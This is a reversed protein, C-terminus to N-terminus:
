AAAVETNGPTENVKQLKIGYKLELQEIATAEPIEPANQADMFSTVMYSFGESLSVEVGNGTDVKSCALALAAKATAGQDEFLSFHFGVKRATERVGPLGLAIKQEKVYEQVQKANKSDAIAVLEAVNDAKLLKVLDKLKTYGIAVLSAEDEPSLALKAIKEYVDIKYQVVRYGDEIGLENVLFANFGARDVAYKPTTGDAEMITTHAKNRLVYSLVGGIAYDTAQKDQQLKKAAAIADGGVSQVISLVIASENFTEPIAPSATQKPPKPVPPIVVPGSGPVDTINGETKAGEIKPKRPGRSGKGSKPKSDAAPVEAPKSIAAQAEDYQAKATVLAEPSLLELEQFALVSENKSTDGVAHVDFVGQHGGSNASPQYIYVAEGPLLIPKAPAETYGKFAYIGGVGFTQTLDVTPSASADLTATTDESM